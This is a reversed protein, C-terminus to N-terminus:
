LDTKLELGGTLSGSGAGPTRATPVAGAPPRTVAPRSSGTSGAPEGGEARLEFRLATRSADLLVTKEEPLFGPAVVRVRVTDGVRGRVVADPVESGDVSVMAGAANTDVRVSLLPATSGPQVHSQVVHAGPGPRSRKTALGVVLAVALLAAAAGLAALKAPGFSRAPRDPKAPIAVRASSWSRDTNPGGKAVGHALVRGDTTADLSPSLAGVLDPVAAQLAELFERASSFRDERQRALAKSVVDALPAPIGPAGHLSPAPQTCIAIIVQEYNDGTFPRRGTLCEYLIAGLSWLDARGDLDALAQAQEPAMYFPTGLVVGQQTLTNADLAGGRRTIKSIGFDVIKAFMPDSDTEVLFINEPKLDRHVVSNEHARHLGRLVQVTVHVAEPVSLPGLRHLRSGLNEGRLLEMVLYPRGDEVTGVDFVQVIHSSELAGATRAEREFRRVAESQGASELDILKIAVRKGLALNEAEYVAGMGGCGVLRLIRYKGGVERGVWRQQEDHSSDVDTM